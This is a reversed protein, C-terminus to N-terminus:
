SGGHGTHGKPYGALASFIGLFVQIWGFIVARDQIRRLFFRILYGGLAIGTLFSSLM